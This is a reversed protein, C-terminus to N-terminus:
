FIGSLYKVYIEVKGMNSVYKCMGYKKIIQCTLIPHAGFNQLKEYYEM